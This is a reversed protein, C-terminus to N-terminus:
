FIGRRNERNKEDTDMRDWGHNFLKRRNLGTMRLEYRDEQKLMKRGM